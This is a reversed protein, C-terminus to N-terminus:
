IPRPLSHLRRMILGLSRDLSHQFLNFPFTFIETAYCAFPYFQSDPTMLWTIRKGAAVLPATTPATPLATLFTYASYSLQLRQPLAILSRQITRSPDACAPTLPAHRARVASRLPQQSLISFSSPRAAPSGRSKYVNFAAAPGHVCRARFLPDSFGPPCVATSLYHV